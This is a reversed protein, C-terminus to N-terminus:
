ATAVKSPARLKVLPSDSAAAIQTVNTPLRGRAEYPVVSLSLNRQFLDPNM